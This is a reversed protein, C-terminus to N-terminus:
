MDWRDFALRVHLKDQGCSRKACIHQRAEGISLGADMLRKAREAQQLHEASYAQRGDETFDAKEIAGLRILERLARIPLNAM